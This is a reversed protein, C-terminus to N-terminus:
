HAQTAGHTYAPMNFYVFTCTHVNTCEIHTLLYARTYRWSGLLGFRRPVLQDAASERAPCFCEVEEDDGDADVADVDARVGDADVDDSDDGDGGGRRISWHQFGVRWRIHLLM